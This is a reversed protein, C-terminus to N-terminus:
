TGMDSSDILRTNDCNNSGADALLEKSLRNKRRGEDHSIHMADSSKIHNIFPLMGKVMSSTRFTIDSSLKPDRNIIFRWSVLAFLYCLSTTNKKGGEGPHKIRDAKKKSEIM